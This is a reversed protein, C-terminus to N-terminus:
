AKEAPKKETLARLEDELKSIEENKEDKIDLSELKMWGWYILQYTFLAGLFTKLIPSGFTSYFARHANRETQSKGEPKNPPQYDVYGRKGGVGGGRRLGMLQPAVGMRM